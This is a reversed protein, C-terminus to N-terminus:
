VIKIGIVNMTKATNVIMLMLTSTTPYYYGDEGLGKFSEGMAAANPPVYQALAGRKRLAPMHGIDTASFVDCQPANNRLDQTLREYAVQGTTRIVSVKVGPYKQTFARGMQEATESDVQAVYWTVSGEKRAADELAAQARTAAPALAAALPMGTLASRRPMALRM